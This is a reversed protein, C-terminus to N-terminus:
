EGDYGYYKWLAEFMPGRTSEATFPTFVDLMEPKLAAGEAVVVQVQNFVDGKTMKRLAARGPINVQVSSVEVTELVDVPPNPNDFEEVSASDVFPADLELTKEMEKVEAAVSINEFTSIEKKLGKDITLDYPNIPPVEQDLKVTKKVGVTATTPLGGTPDRRLVLPTRGLSYKPAQKDKTTGVTEKYEGAKFFTAAFDPQCEIVDGPMLPFSVGNYCVNTPRKGFYVYKKKGSM